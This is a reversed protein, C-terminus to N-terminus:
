HFKWCNQTLIKNKIKNKCVKLLCTLLDNLKMSIELIKLSQEDWSYDSNEFVIRASVRRRNGDISRWLFVVCIGLICVAILLFYNFGNSSKEEIQASKQTSNLTILVEGIEVLSKELNEITKMLSPYKKRLENVDMCNEIAGKVIEM